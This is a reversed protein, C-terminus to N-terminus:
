IFQFNVKFVSNCIPNDDFHVRQCKSIIIRQIQLFISRKEGLDGPARRFCVKRAYSNQEQCM